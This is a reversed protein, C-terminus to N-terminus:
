RAVERLKPRADAELAARLSQTARHLRSRVTGPPIALASAVDEISLDLYHYLVIVARQDIPLRRFGRELQDRDDVRDFRDDAAHDTSLHALDVV